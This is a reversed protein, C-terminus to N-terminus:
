VSKRATRQEYVILICLLLMLIPNIIISLSFSDALLAVITHLPIFIKKPILILGFLITYLLDFRTKKKELLFLWLPIFLFILKYLYTIYPILLFNCILLTLQKWFSKERCVFLITFFTMIFCVVNYIKILTSIHFIPLLYIDYLFLKLPLFLSSGYRLGEPLPPLFSYVAKFRLQTKIFFVLQNLFGGKFLLFGGIVLLFSILISLFCEKYKKELWFLILFLSFFPKIANAIGLFIAAQTFKKNIFAYTWLSIIVFLFMDFNGIYMLYIFPHSLFCIILFNSFNQFKTLNDCALIKFNLFIFCSLFGLSYLFYSLALNKIFAFPIILAYALPFYIVWFIIDSYLEFDKIYPFSGKFDCLCWNAAPLISRYNEGIHFFEDLFFHYIIGVVFGVLIISSLVAVKNSKEMKNVRYNSLHECIVLFDM